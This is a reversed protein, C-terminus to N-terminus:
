DFFTLPLAIFNTGLRPPFASNLVISERDTPRWPLASIKYHMSRFFESISNWESQKFCEFIVIPKVKKLTQQAGRLVSIENGEVDIKILTRLNSMQPLYDDVTKQEVKETILEMAGSTEDVVDRNTSGLWTDRKPYFLDVRDCCDGVAIHELRPTYGNLKCTEHLYAHCTSNPEFTITSINHALFLLSHVGYNAGIDLFLEPRMRSGILAEYTLKIEIDHGIISVANDWDLWFRETTLPMVVRKGAFVIEWRGSRPHLRTERFGKAFRQHFRSRQAPTMRLYVSNLLTRSWPLAATLNMSARVVAKAKDFL